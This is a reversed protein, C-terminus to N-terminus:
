EDESVTYTMLSNVSPNYDTVSQAIEEFQTRSALHELDVSLKFENPPPMSEPNTPVWTAYDVAQYKAVASIYNCLQSVKERQYLVQVANPREAAKLCVWRGTECPIQSASPNNAVNLMYDHHVLEYESSSYQQYEWIQSCRREIQEVADLANGRVSRTFREIGNATNREASIRETDTFAQRPPLPCTVIVVDPRFMVMGGKVEVQIPDNDLLLLM